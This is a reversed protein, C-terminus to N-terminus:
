LVRQTRELEGVSFEAKSDVLGMLQERNWLVPDYPPTADRAGTVRVTSFGDSWLTSIPSQTTFRGASASMPVSMPSGNARAERNILRSTM